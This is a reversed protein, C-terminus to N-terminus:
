ADDVFQSEYILGASQQDEVTFCSWLLSYDGARLRLAVHEVPRTWVRVAEGEILVDQDGSVRRELAEEAVERLSIEIAGDWASAM